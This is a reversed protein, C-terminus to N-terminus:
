QDAYGDDTEPVHAETGAQAKHRRQEEFDLPHIPEPRPPDIAFRTGEPLKFMPGPPTQVATEKAQALLGELNDILELAKMAVRPDKDGALEALLKARRKFPLLLRLRRQYERLTDRDGRQDWHAGSETQGRNEGEQTAETEGSPRPGALQGERVLTAAVSGVGRRDLGLREAVKSLLGKGYPTIPAEAVLAATIRDRVGQDRVREYRKM